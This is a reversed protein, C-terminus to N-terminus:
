VGGRPTLALVIRLAASCQMLTRLSDLIVADCLSDLIVADCLSDLIMADRLSDLIM